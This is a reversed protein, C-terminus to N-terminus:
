LKPNDDSQVGQMFFGKPKGVSIAKGVLEVLPDVQPEPMGETGDGEGVESDVKLAEDPKANVIGDVMNSINRLKEAESKNNFYNDNQEM